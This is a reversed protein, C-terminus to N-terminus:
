KYQNYVKKLKEYIVSKFACSTCEPRKQNPFVRMYIDKWQEQEDHSFKIKNTSVAEHVVNFDEENFCEPKEYRFVENLLKKRDDCGCDKELKQFVTDVVKKIGTKTTIKSITDGLGTSGQEHNKKFKEFDKNKSKTSTRTKSTKSTKKLNKKSNM